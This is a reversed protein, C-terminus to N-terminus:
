PGVVEFPALWPEDRVGLEDCLKLFAVRLRALTPLGLRDLERDARLSGDRLDLLFLGRVSAATECREHYRHQLRETRLRVDEFEERRDAWEIPMRLVPYFAHEDLFQLLQRRAERDDHM